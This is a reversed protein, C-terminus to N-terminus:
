GDKRVFARRPAPPSMKSPVASPTTEHVPWENKLPTRPPAVPRDFLTSVGGWQISVDRSPTKGDRGGPITLRVGRETEVCTIEPHKDRDWFGLTTHTGGVHIEGRFVVTALEWTTPPPPIELGPEADEILWAISTAPLRLRRKDDLYFCAGGDVTRSYRIGEFHHRSYNPKSSYRGGPTFTVKPM